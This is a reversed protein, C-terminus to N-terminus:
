GCRKKSAPPSCVLRVPTMCNVHDPVVVALRTNEQLRRQLAEVHYLLGIGLVVITEHSHDSVTQSDAWTHAERVPDYASHIRRGHCEATPLGIVLPASPYCAVEREREDSWRSISYALRIDRHQYSPHDHHLRRSSRHLFNGGCRKGNSPGTIRPEGTFSAGWEDLPEALSGTSQLQAPGGNLILDVSQQVPWSEPAAAITNSYGIDMVTLDPKTCAPVPLISDWQAPEWLPEWIFRAQIPGSSGDVQSLVTMLQILDTRGTTDWVRGLLLPSLAGQIAQATERELGSGVLVVRGQPHTFLFRNIWDAWIPCPICRSSDGAGVVVAVWLGEATGIEGLDGAVRCTFGEAAACTRDAEGRVIRLVCRGSPSSQPFARRRDPPSIPDM